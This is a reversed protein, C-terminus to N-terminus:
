KRIRTKELLGLAKIRRSDMKAQMAVDNKFVEKAHDIIRLENEYRHTRRYLILLRNYSHTAPYGDAINEEYLKIALETNKEAEAKIGRSNRDATRFLLDDKEKKNILRLEMASIEQDSFEAQHGALISDELREFEAKTM